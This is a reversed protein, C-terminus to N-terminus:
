VAKRAMKVIQKRVCSLPFPALLHTPSVLPAAGDKLFDAAAPTLMGEGLSADDIKIEGGKISAITVACGAKKFAYYPSALEELWLGTPAGSKLATASTSIIVISKVM